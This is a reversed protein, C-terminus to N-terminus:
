SEEGGTKYVVARGMDKKVEGKTDEEHRKVLVLNIGWKKWADVSKVKIQNIKDWYLFYVSIRVYM